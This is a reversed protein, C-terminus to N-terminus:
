AGPGPKRAVVFLYDSLARHEVWGNLLGLAGRDMSGDKSRHSFSRLEVTELGVRRTLLRMSAPSFHYLHWPFGFHWYRRGRVGLRCALTKLRATIGRHNPVQAFFYGGPRLVAACHEMVESLNYLHELVDWIIVGDFRERPYGACELTGAVLGQVGLSETGVRIAEVSVDIGESEFGAERALMVVLGVHCGVDLVRAGPALWRSVLDVKLRSVRYTRDDRQQWQARDFDAFRGTDIHSAARQYGQNLSEQSFRPSSFIIDSAPDHWYEIGVDDVVVRRERGSSGFPNVGPELLGRWGRFEVVDGSRFPGDRKVAHEVHQITSSVALATM